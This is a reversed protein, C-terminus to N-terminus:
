RHNLPRLRGGAGCVNALHISDRDGRVLRDNGARAPSSPLFRMLRGITDAIKGYNAAVIRGDPRILFEAALGM